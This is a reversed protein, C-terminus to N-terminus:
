VSDKFDRPVRSRFKDSYARTLGEMAAPNDFVWREWEAAIELAKERAAETAEDDRYSKGASGKRKVVISRHNQRLVATLLEYFNKDKTGWVEYEAADKGRRQAAPPTKVTWLNNHDRRVKAVRRGGFGITANAFASIIETPIWAAGLQLPVEDPSADAPMRARLEEINRRIYDRDPHEDLTVMAESLKERVNDSLYAPRGILRDPNAPDRFVADGALGEVDDEPVDLVEALRKWTLDDGREELLAVADDPNDARLPGEEKPPHIQ